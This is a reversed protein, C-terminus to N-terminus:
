IAIKGLIENMKRNLVRIEVGIRESVELAKESDDIAKESDHLLKEQQEIIDEFPVVMRDMIEKIRYEFNTRLNQIDAQTMGIQRPMELSSFHNKFELLLGELTDIQQQLHEVSNVLITFNGIYDELHKMLRKSLSEADTIRASVDKNIQIQNNKFEEHYSVLACKQCCEKILIKMETLQANIADIELRYQNSRTQLNVIQREFM